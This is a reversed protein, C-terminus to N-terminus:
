GGQMMAYIYINVVMQMCAVDTGAPSPSPYETVHDWGCQWGCLSILGAMRTGIMVGYLGHAAKKPDYVNSMFTYPPRGGPIPFHCRYVEHTTPLEEVRAEPLVKAYFEIQQRLFEDFDPTVHSDHCADVLVFGGRRIYEALNDQGAQGTVMGVGQSFLFPYRVLEALADADAVYWTPDINLTTEDRFFKTLIPDSGAHRKWDPSPTKLRAWGVRDGRLRDFSAGFATIGPALVAGALLRQLFLRRSIDTPHNM